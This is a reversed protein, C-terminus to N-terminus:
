NSISYERFRYDCFNLEPDLALEFLKNPGHPVYQALVDPLPLPMLFERGMTLPKFDYAQSFLM